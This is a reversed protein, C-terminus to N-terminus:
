LIHVQRMGSLLNLFDSNQFNLVFNIIIFGKDSMKTHVVIDSYIKCNSDNKNQSM